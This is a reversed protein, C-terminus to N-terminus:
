LSWANEVHEITYHEGRWIVAIADFRYSLRREGYRDIWANAVYAIERRKKWTIAELPHGFGKGSRAKVEIFAVVNAKSAIVDIEKHAVRFNRALIRYGARRLAAVACAESTIGLRHARMALM